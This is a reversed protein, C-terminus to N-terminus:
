EITNCHFLFQSLLKNITISNDANSNARSKNSMPTEYLVAEYNHIHEYSSRYKM